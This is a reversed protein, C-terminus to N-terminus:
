FPYGIAINLMLNEKRWSGSGFDINDIVWNDGNVPYPQRIPFALDTRFILFTFDLRLGAGVGVAIEKMFDKTFEANPQEPDENLLWINGADVFLAGDVISFLKARYETNFELKVDGTEDPLFTADPPSIDRIINAIM